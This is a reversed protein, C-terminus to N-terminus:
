SRIGVESVEIDLSNIQQLILFAIYNRRVTETRSGIQKRVSNYSLELDDIMHAIFEAKEPPDWEKIGTVHRFGLFAIVDQRSDARIYPVEEFLREDPQADESMRRWVRSDTQGSLALKLYKLAAVRRNGEVVVLNAPPGYLEEEVVIVAEQPWYGNELFSVALEELSWSRVLEMVREQTPLQESRSLGLRPNRPDLYLEELTAFDIKTSLAM